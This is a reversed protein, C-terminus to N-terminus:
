QTRMEIGLTLDQPLIGGLKDVLYSKIFSSDCTIRQQTETPSEITYILMKHQDDQYMKNIAATIFDMTNYTLVLSKEKNYSQLKLNIDFKNSQIENKFFDFLNNAVCTAFNHLTNEQQNILEDYRIIFKFAMFYFDQNCSLAQGQRSPLSSVFEEGINTSVNPIRTYLSTKNHLTHLFGLISEGCSPYTNVVENFSKNYKILRDQSIGDLCNFQLKKSTNRWINFCMDIIKYKGLNEHYIHYNNEYILQSLLYIICVILPVNHKEHSTIDLFHTNLTSCFLCKKGNEDSGSADLLISIVNEKVLLMVLFLTCYITNTGTRHKLVDFNFLNIVFKKISTDFNIIKEAMKTELLLGIITICQYLLNSRHYDNNEDTGYISIQEYMYLWKEFFTQGGSMSSFLKLFEINKESKINEIFINNINIYLPINIAKPTHLITHLAYEGNSQKIFPNKTLIEHICKLFVKHLGSNALVDNFANYTIFNIFTSSNYKILEELYLLNKNELCLKTIVYVPFNDLYEVSKETMMFILSDMTMNGHYRIDNILSSGGGGEDSTIANEFYAHKNHELEITFSEDEGFGFIIKDTHMKSTTIKTLSFESNEFLEFLDTFFSTCKDNLNEQDYFDTFVLTTKVDKFISLCVLILNKLRPNLEFPVGSADSIFDFNSVSSPNRMSPFTEINNFYKFRKEIEGPTKEGAAVNKFIDTLTLKHEDKILGIYPLIDCKQTQKNWFLIKLFQFIVNEMCDGVKKGNYTVYNFEYIPIDSSSLYKTNLRYGIGTQTQHKTITDWTISDSIGWNGSIFRNKLRYNVIVLLLIIAYDQFNIIDIIKSLIEVFVFIDDLLSEIIQRQRSDKSKKFQTEVYNDIYAPDDKEIKVEKSKEDKTSQITKLYEKASDKALKTLKNFDFIDKTGQKKEQTPITTSGSKDSTHQETTRQEKPKEKEKHKAPDVMKQMKEQERKANSATKKEEIEAASLRPQLHTKQYDDRAISRINKKELAVLSKFKDDYQKDTTKSNLFGEFDQDKRNIMVNNTYDSIDKLNDLDYENLSDIFMKQYSIMLQDMTGDKNNYIVAIITLIFEILERFSYTFFAVNMFNWKMSPKVFKKQKFNETYVRDFTFLSEILNNQQPTPNITDYLMVFLNMVDNINILMYQFQVAKTVFNFVSRHSNAYKDNLNFSSSKKYTNFDHDTLMFSKDIIYEKTDPNNNYIHVPYLELTKLFSSRYYDSADQLVYLNAKTNFMFNLPYSSDLLKKRICENQDEAPDLGDYCKEFTTSGVVYPLVGGTYKKALLVDYSKKNREYQVYNHM